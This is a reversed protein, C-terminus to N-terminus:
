LRQPHGAAAPAAGTVRGAATARISRRHAHDFSGGDVAGQGVAAQYLMQAVGKTGAALHRQAAMEMDVRRGIMRVPGAAGQQHHRGPLRAPMDADLRDADEGVIGLGPQGRHDAGIQQEIGIGARRFRHDVTHRQGQPTSGTGRRQRGAIQRSLIGPMQQHDAGARQRRMQDTGMMGHPTVLADLDPVAIRRPCLRHRFFQGVEIGRNRHDFVQLRGHASGIGNGAGGEAAFRQHAAVPQLGASMDIQDATERRLHALRIVGGQLATGDPDIGALARQFLGAVKHHRQLM